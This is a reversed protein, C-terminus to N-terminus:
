SILEKLQLINQICRIEVDPIEQVFWELGEKRSELSIENRLNALKFQSNRHKVSKSLFIPTLGAVAGGWIDNLLSDGVIIAQKKERSRASKIAYEFFEPQPKVFGIKDSTVL